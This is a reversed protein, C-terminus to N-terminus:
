PLQVQGWFNPILLGLAAAFCIDCMFGGTVGTRMFKLVILKLKSVWLWIFRAVGVTRKGSQSEAILDHESECERQYFSVSEFIRFSRNGPTTQKELFTLPHVVHQQRIFKALVRASQKPTLIEYHAAIQPLSSCVRDKPSIYGTAGYVRSDVGDSSTRKRRWCIGRESKL